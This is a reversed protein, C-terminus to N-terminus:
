RNRANQSYIDAITTQSTARLQRELTRKDVGANPTVYIVEYDVSSRIRSKQRFSTVQSGYMGRWVTLVEDTVGASILGTGGSTEHLNIVIDGKQPKPNAM